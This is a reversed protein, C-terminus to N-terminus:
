SLTVNLHEILRNKNPSLKASGRRKHQSLETEPYMQSTAVSNGAMARASHRHQPPDMLLDARTLFHSLLARCDMFNMLFNWPFIFSGPHQFIRVDGELSGCNVSFDQPNTWIYKYLPSPFFRFLRFRKQCAPM